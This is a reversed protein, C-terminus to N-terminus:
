VKIIKKLKASLFVALAIKVADPAIYPLVCKVLAADLPIKTQIIFWVTGAVYCAVLALALAVYHFARGSSFQKEFMWFVACTLIFGVIYGGTPGVLHGVGGRFGSFVPVGLAGLAMYTVVSVTGCKGGAYELAFFVAFTQMTFPIEPIVPVTIWSCVAIAATM